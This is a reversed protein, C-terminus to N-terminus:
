FSMGSLLPNGEEAQLRRIVIEIGVFKPWDDGMALDLSSDSRPITEQEILDNATTAESRDL